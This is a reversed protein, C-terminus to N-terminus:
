ISRFNRIPSLKYVLNKAMLLAKKAIKSSILKLNDGAASTQYVDISHNDNKSACAGILVSVILITLHTISPNLFKNM